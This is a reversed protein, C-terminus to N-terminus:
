FSPVNPALAGSTSPSSSSTGGGVSTGTPAVASVPAQAAPSSPSIPNASVEGSSSQGSTMSKNKEFSLLDPNINFVLDFSVKGRPTLIFNSFIHDRIFPNESFADSQQAIARYGDSEGTLSIVPKGEDTLSFDFKTFRISRLTTQELINFFPTIVIHKALVADGVTLRKDLSQLETILNPEFSKEARKISVEYESTQNVLYGEYFYAGAGAVGAILFLLVAITFLLGAPRSVRVPEPAIPKKPIFTTKFDQDM